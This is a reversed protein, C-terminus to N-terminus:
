SVLNGLGHGILMKLHRLNESWCLVSKLSRLCFAIRPVRSYRYNEAGCRFPIAVDSWSEGISLDRVIGWWGDGPVGNSPLPVVKLGDSAKTVRCEFQPMTSKSKGGLDFEGLFPSPVASRHLFTPSMVSTPMSIQIHNVTCRLDISM